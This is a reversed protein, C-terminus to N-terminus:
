QVGSRKLAARGKGIGTAKVLFAIRELPTMGVALKFHEAMELFLEHTLRTNFFSCPVNRIPQDVNGVQLRKLILGDCDFFLVDGRFLFQPHEFNLSLDQGPKVLCEHLGIVADRRRALYPGRAQNMYPRPYPGVPELEPSDEDDDDDFPFM